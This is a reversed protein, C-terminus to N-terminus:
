RRRFEGQNRSADIVELRPAPMHPDGPGRLPQAVLGGREFIEDSRYDVGDFSDRGFSQAKVPNAPRSAVAARAAKEGAGSQLVIRKVGGTGENAYVIQNAPFEGAGERGVGTTVGATLIDEIRPASMKTENAALTAAVRSDDPKLTLGIDQRRPADAVQQRLASNVLHTTGAAQFQLATVKFESLGDERALNKIQHQVDNGLDHRTHPPDVAAAKRQGDTTVVRLQEERNRGPPLPSVQPPKWAPTPDIPEPNIRRLDTVAPDEPVLQDLNIRQGKQPMSPEVSTHRVNPGVSTPLVRRVDDHVHEDRVKRSKHDWSVPADSRLLDKLNFSFQYKVSSASGKTTEARPGLKKSSTLTTVAPIPSRVVADEEARPLPGRDVPDHRTAGQRAGFSAARTDQPVRRPGAADVEASGEPIGSRPVAARGKPGLELVVGNDTWRVDTRDEEGHLMGRRTRNVAPGHFKSTVIGEKTGGAENEIPAGLLRAGRAGGAPAPGFKVAQPVAPRQLTRDPMVEYADDRFARSRVQAGALGRVAGYDRMSATKEQGLDYTNFRPRPATGRDSTYGDYGGQGPPRVFERDVPTHANLSMRPNLTRQSVVRMREGADPMPDFDVGMPDDNLAERREVLDRANQARIWGPRFTNVPVSQNLDAKAFEVGFRNTSGYPPAGPGPPRKAPPAPPPMDVYTPDGEFTEEPIKPYPDRYIGLTPPQNMASRLQQALFAGSVFLLPVAM